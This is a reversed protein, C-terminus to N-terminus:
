RTEANQELGRLSDRLLILASGLLAIDKILFQGPLVSLAPFGGLSPEFAGPTTLIFSLTTAFLGIAAVAGIVGARPSRIGLVLLLAISLEATGMAAAFGSVSLFSYVWSFLPSAQVLGSIAEAEYPTFKMAGIWAIVAAVGFRQAHPAVAEVAARIRIMGFGTVPYDTVEARVTM